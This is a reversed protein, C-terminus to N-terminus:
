ESMNKLAQQITWGALQLSKIPLIGTYAHVPTYPDMLVTKVRMEATHADVFSAGALTDEPNIFYPTLTPFSGPEIYQRPDGKTGDEPGPFYTWMNSFDTAPTDGDWYAVLGDFPREAQLMHDVMDQVYTYFSVDGIKLKFHYQAMVDLADQRLPDLGPKTPDPNARPPPMTHQEWYPPQALELSWGVNVLALPKGVIANAYVAYESPPYPTSPTAAVITDWLALLYAAGDDGKMKNILSVLQQSVKTDSGTPPDFPRWAQPQITGTPGGFEM